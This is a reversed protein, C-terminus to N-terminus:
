TKVTGGLEDLEDSSMKKGSEGSRASPYSTSFWYEGPHQQRARTSSDRSMALDCHIELSKGVIKRGIRSRAILLEKASEQKHSDGLVRAQDRPKVKSQM